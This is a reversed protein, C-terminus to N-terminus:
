VGTAGPQLLKDGTLPNTKCTLEGMDVCIGATVRIIAPLPAVAERCGGSTTHKVMATLPAVAGGAAAGRNPHAANAGRMTAIYPM